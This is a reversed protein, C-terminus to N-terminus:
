RLGDRKALADRLRGKLRARALFHENRQQETPAAVQEFRADLAAIELALAEPDTERRRALMSPGKRMFAMGMALLMAAGVATVVLMVRLGRAEGAPGPATVTFTGPAVDQALFRKLPRGDVQVPTVETLGAGSVGGRPDEVLVEVAPVPQEVLFALPDATAPVQYFFSFQKPGPALPASVRVRGDVARIADSSVDGEGGSITTIGPPLPADFTFGDRGAVRTLSSDNTLEYVEVITRTAATASDPATVIVHRGRVTIPIPTSTTDYVLIEAMGGRVAPERMPPTFYAVGGRNTSVFYVATSDGSPRYRFGYGGDPRTRMSDLPGASDRGVRHLIVWAAPVGVTRAGAPRTVRGEIM